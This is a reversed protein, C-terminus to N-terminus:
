SNFEEESECGHLIKNFRSKFESNGLNSALHNTANKSIHWICLRHCTEPLVLQIANIMAQCQDTFITKPKRSGMSELFTEFLWTFTVTTEDLLFACGFLVNKWHHNIGVFPACIMNYKNTRYTTDFSVVDGFSEYDIRSRGDRWFFNTMRNKQDVQVAYFFMPDEAQKQKFLNILSQADGAEVKILKQRNVFNYADRRTFGVNEFGGTEESMFSYAGITRIGAEKFTTLVGSYADTIRRNSRLFQRYEVKALEHNHEHKFSTVKWEGNEVTFRIGAKCGTRTELRNMKKAECSSSDRQFGEKSCM